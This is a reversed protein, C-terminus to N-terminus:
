FTLFFPALDSCVSEGLTDSRIWFTEPLDQGIGSAIEHDPAPAPLVNAVAIAQFVQVIEPLVRTLRYIQDVIGFATRNPVLEHSLHVLPEIARAPGSM